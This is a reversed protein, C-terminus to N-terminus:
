CSAKWCTTQATVAQAVAHAGTCCELLRPTKTSIKPLSNEQHKQNLCIFTTTGHFIIDIIRHIGRFGFSNLTKLM